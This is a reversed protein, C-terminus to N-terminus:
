RGKRAPFYCGLRLRFTGHIGDSWGEQRLDGVIYNETPRVSGSRPDEVNRYSIFRAAYGVGLIFNCYFAKRIPFEYGFVLHAGWQRREFDARSFALYDGEVGDQLFSGNSLEAITHTYFPEIGMYPSFGSPYRKYHRFEGRVEAFRYRGDPALHKFRVWNIAESGYGIDLSFGLNGATNYAIGGSWRVPALLLTSPSLHIGLASRTESSQAALVNMSLFYFLGPLVPVLALM